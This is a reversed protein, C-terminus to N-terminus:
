EEDSASDDDDEEEDDEGADSGQAGEEEAGDEADDEEEEEEESNEEEDEEEAEVDDDEEEEEELDAAEAARALAMQEKIKRRMASRRRGEEEDDEMIRASAPARPPASPARAPASASPSARAASTSPSVSPRAHKARIADRVEMLLEGMRNEGHMTKGHIPHDQVFGGWFPANSKSMKPMRELVVIYAHGTQLLLQMHAPNKTFKQMSAERLVELLRDLRDGSPRGIADDRLEVELVYSSDGDVITLEQSAKKNPPNAAERAIIGIMNREKQWYDHRAQLSVKKKLPIAQLGKAWDNLDGKDCFDRPQKVRMAQFAHEVSFFRRHLPARACRTDAIALPFVHVRMHLQAHLM